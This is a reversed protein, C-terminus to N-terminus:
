RCRHLLQHRIPVIYKQGIVDANAVKYCKFVLGIKCILPANHCCPVTLQPHIGVSLALIHNFYIVCLSKNIVSHIDGYRSIIVSRGDGIRNQAGVAHKPAIICQRLETIQVCAIASIGLHDAIILFQFESSVIDGASIGISRYNGCLADASAFRDHRLSIQVQDDCISMVDTGIAVRYIFGIIALIIKGNASAIANRVATGILSIIICAERSINIAFAPLLFRDRDIRKVACPAYQRIRPIFIPVLMKLQVAFRHFVWVLQRCTCVGAKVGIPIRIFQGAIQPFSSQLDSVRQRSELQNVISSCICNRRRRM